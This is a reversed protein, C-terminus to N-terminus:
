TMMGLGIGILLEYDSGKGWPIGMLIGMGM